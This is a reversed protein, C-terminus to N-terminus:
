VIHQQISPTYGVVQLLGPLILRGGEGRVSGRARYGTSARCSRTDSSSSVTLRLPIANFVALWRRSLVSSAACKSIALARTADFSAPLARSFANPFQEEKLSRSCSASFRTPLNKIPLTPSYLFQLPPETRQALTEGPLFRPHQQQHQNNNNENNVTFRIIDDDNNNRKLQHMEHYRPRRRCERQVHEGRAM